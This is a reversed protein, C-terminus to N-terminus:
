SPYIKINCKFVQQLFGITIYLANRVRLMQSNFISGTLSVVFMWMKRQLKLVQTILVNKDKFLTKLKNFTTYTPPMM